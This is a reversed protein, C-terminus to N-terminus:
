VATSRDVDRRTGLIFVPVEDCVEWVGMGGFGTIKYSMTNHIIHIHAIVHMGSFHM